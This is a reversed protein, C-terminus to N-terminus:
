LHALEVLTQMASERVQVEPINIAEFIKLMIFDREQQV